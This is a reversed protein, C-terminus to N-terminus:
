GPSSMTPKRPPGIAKVELMRTPYNKTKDTVAVSDIAKQSSHSHTVKDVVMAATQVTKAVTKEVAQEVAHTVVGVPKIYIPIEKVDGTSVSRSTVFKYIVFAAVLGLAIAAALSRYEEVANMAMVFQDTFMYALWFLLNVGPIAYLVDALMFRSIPMKLVGAMIFVPTRIGPTFRAALLIMIGNNHFNTEISAQRDPPLLKRQVWASRLLRRGWFRGVCYLVTDGFVVGFICVPLMIWWRAVGQPSPAHHAVLGGGFAGNWDQHYAVEQADHGVMAGAAVIPIEEPIPAGFGALILTGLIGGYKLLSAPDLM